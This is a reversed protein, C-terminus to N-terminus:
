WGPAVGGHGGRSRRSARVSFLQPLLPEGGGVIGKVAQEGRGLLVLEDGEQLALGTGAQEPVFEAGPEQLVVDAAIGM